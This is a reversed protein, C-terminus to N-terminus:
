LKGKESWDGFDWDRDRLPELLRQVTRILDADPTEDLWEINKALREPSATSVLTTPIDDNALSFQIALKEILTDQSKCFEVASEVAGRQEGSMPHWDAAGRSTLLGTGLPSASILGVGKSQAQALLETVQTDCLTYHNHCLITDLNLREMAHALVGIPYATVGVFRTKGQEKLKELAEFGETLAQELHRGGQYEIDHLQLVDLYEVGLRALSEDCSALIRKASFDFESDGFRGAKTALYYADRPIERLAKGLVTEAKTIGYFPSVDIYNIGSDVAVHVARIGEGEDIQRFMSGLSSAGFSLHSVEMETNGLAHYNM